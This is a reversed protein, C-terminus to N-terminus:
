ANRHRAENEAYVAAFRDARTVRRKAAIRDMRAKSKAKEAEDHQAKKAKSSEIERYYM